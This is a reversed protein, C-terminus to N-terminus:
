LKESCAIIVWHRYVLMVAILFKGGRGGSPDFNLYTFKAIVWDTTMKKVSIECASLYVIFLFCILRSKSRLGTGSGRPPSLPHPWFTLIWSKQFMIMSCIVNFPLMFSAVHYCINQGRLGAWRWGRVRPDFPWFEVKGSCPWIAYWILYFWSNPFPTAFIKGAFGRRGGGLGPPPTLIDFNVKEFCPWTANWSLHFWLHLWMTAFIEGASGWVVLPGPPWFTLILSKWFM